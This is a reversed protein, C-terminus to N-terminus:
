RLRRVSWLLLLGRWRRLLRCLPCWAAAAACTLSSWRHTCESLRQARLCGVHDHQAAIENLQSLLAAAETAFELASADGTDEAGPLARRPVSFGADVALHASCTLMVARACLAARAWAGLNQLVAADLECNADQM